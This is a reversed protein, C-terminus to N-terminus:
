PACANHANVDMLVQNHNSSKCYRTQERTYLDMQHWHPFGASGKLVSIGLFFLCHQQNLTHNEANLDAGISASQPQM